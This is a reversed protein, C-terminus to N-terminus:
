SKPARKTSSRPHVANTIQRDLGDAEPDRGIAASYFERAFKAFKGTTTGSPKHPSFRKFFGLALNVVHQKGIQRRRGKRPDKASNAARIIKDITELVEKIEFRGNFVPGFVSSRWFDRYVPPYSDLRKLKKTLKKAAREIDYLLENHDLARPRTEAAQYNDKAGALAASLWAVAKRDSQDVAAIRLLEPIRNEAM